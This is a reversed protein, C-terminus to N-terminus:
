NCCGTFWFTFLCVPLVASTMVFGIPPFMFSFLSSLLGAAVIWGIWTAPPMGSETYRVLSPLDYTNFTYAHAAVLAAAVGGLFVGPTWRRNARALFLSTVIGALMALAGAALFVGEFRAGEGPVAGVPIWKLAVAAEYVASVGIVAVGALAVYDARSLARSVEIAEPSSPTRM